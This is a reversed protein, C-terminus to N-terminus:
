HQRDRFGPLLPWFRGVGAIAAFSVPWTQLKASSNSVTMGALTAAYCPLGAPAIQRAKKSRRLTSDPEHPFKQRADKAKARENRDAGNEQHQM